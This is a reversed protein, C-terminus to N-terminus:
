RRDDQNAITMLAKAETATSLDRHPLAAEVYFSDGTGPCFTKVSGDIVIEFHVSGREGRDIDIQYM